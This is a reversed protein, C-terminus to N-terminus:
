SKWIDCANMRKFNVQRVTHSEAAVHLSMKMKLDVWIHTNVDNRHSPVLDSNIENAGEDPGQKRKFKNM